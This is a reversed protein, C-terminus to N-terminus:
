LLKTSQKFNYNQIELLFYKRKKMETSVVEILYDMFIRAGFISILSDVDLCLFLVGPKNDHLIYTRINLENYNKFWTFNGTSKHKVDTMNMFVLGIYYKGDFSDFTCNKPLYKELTKINKIEFHQFLLNKWSQKWGKEM